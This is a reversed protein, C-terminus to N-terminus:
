LYPQLFIYKPHTLVKDLKKVRTAEKQQYPKDNSFVCRKTMKEFGEVTLDWCSLALHNVQFEITYVRM